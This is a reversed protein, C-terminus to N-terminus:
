SLCELSYCGHQEPENGFDMGQQLTQNISGDLGQDISTETQGKGMKKTPQFTPDPPRQFALSAFNQITGFDCYATKLDVPRLYQLALNGEIGAVNNQM